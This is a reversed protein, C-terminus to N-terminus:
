LHGLQYRGRVFVAWQVMFIRMLSVCTDVVLLSCGRGARFARYWLWECYLNQSRVRPGQMKFSGWMLCASLSCGSDGPFCSTESATLRSWVLSWLSLLFMIFLTYFYCKQFYFFFFFLVTSHETTLLVATNRARVFRVRLLKRILQIEM